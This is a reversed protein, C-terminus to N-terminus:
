RGVYRWLWQFRLYRDQALDTIVLTNEVLMSLQGVVEAVGFSEAHCLVRQRLIGGNHLQVHKRAM